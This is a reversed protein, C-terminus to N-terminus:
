ACRNIGSPHCEGQGAWATSAAGSCSRGAPGDLFQPRTGSVTGSRAAQRHLTAEEEWLVHGPLAQFDSAMDAASAPSTKRLARPLVRSANEEPVEQLGPVPSQLAASGEPRPRASGAPSRQPNCVHASTPFRRPARKGESAKVQGQLCSVFCFFCVFRFDPLSLSILLQKPETNSGTM